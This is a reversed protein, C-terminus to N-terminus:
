ATNVAPNAFGTSQTSQGKDPLCLIAELMLAAIMLILFTRWIESALELASGAEDTIVTYNVGSLTQQLSEESIIVPSDEELPRNIATLVDNHQYLGARIARQSLLQEASLDDLPKWDDIVEASVEGAVIERAAGLVAAGKALARHLMVYLVIGNDILNSHREEPLTSCFYASGQAVSTRLLLPQHDTFEALTIASEAEVGCARSVQIEGVPLPSGSQTNALLDSDTRWRQITLPEPAEFWNTWRVGLFEASQPNEPPFFIIQRGSALYERVQQALLERPLPAHWLILGATDWPLTAASSVPVVETEYKLSRDVGTATALRLIESVDSDDSVIVTKQVAPESYVFRYINDVPNADGPIEVRGWGSKQEASLPITHGNRVVESGALEVDLTSRAGNIVINVPVHIPTETPQTRTIRLDLVLEPSGATERRHVGSVSVALNEAALGPYSLLYFRVGDRQALQSRISEWRGGAPNWDNQRMDSCVWVDTRGTENAVVYETVRELLAPIDAQTATPGTEPLDLLEKASGIRRPEASTSEFLVLQTNRGTNSILDALKRLATERKSAVSGSGQQEMSASRDLVIITTDPTSGATLGLWGGSMPRSAAFILGAIALMRALMILLYRLRAMGRSMKRAQVLFMTAAWHITKHRNQNILHILIPIAILPLAFLLYPQLFTM